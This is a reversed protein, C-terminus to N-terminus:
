AHEPVDRRRYSHTRRKPASILRATRCAVSRWTNLISGALLLRPLCSGEADVGIRQTPSGAIRACSHERKNGACALKVENVLANHAPDTQAPPDPASELAAELTSAAEDFGIEPRRLRTRYNLLAQAAVRFVWSRLRSEGRFSDLKTALRVLIEQWADDVDGARHATPLQIV